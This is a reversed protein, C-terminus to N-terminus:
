EDNGKDDTLFARVRAKIYDGIDTGLNEYIWLVSLTVVLIIIVEAKEM